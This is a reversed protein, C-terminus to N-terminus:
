NLSSRYMDRFILYSSNDVQQILSNITVESIIKLDNGTPGKCHLQEM